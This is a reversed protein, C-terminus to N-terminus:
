RKRGSSSSKKKPPAKTSTKKKSTTQKYQNTKQTGTSRSQYTKNLNNYNKSRSSSTAKSGSTTKNPSSGSRNYNGTSSSRNGSNTKERTNRNSNSSNGRDKNPDSSRNTTSARGSSNTSARNTGEGTGTWRGNERKEWGNNTRRHVNGNRDTYVNNTRSVESGSRRVRNNNTITTTNTTTNRSSSTNTGTRTVGTERNRYVNTSRHTSRTSSSSSYSSSKTGYYYGASAGATYGRNYGYHYSRGYGYRYGAHYGAPGWYGRYYGPGVRYSVHFWGYSIGYSFGWGSYPSYHVGYGYTTHRPYYYTRYWPRYYYGTGYVVVGHYAYSGIYGPTYGMYVVTPTYHYVHVYKVNYVPYEAPIDQFEGPVDVCVSWPGDPGYAIFWVADDCCYYRNDIMLVSKDTNVAYSIETGKIAEFSADGDYEVEVKADQRNVEATQPITNELTADMAEETGSVSALVSGVDSNTPIQGFDEPLDRSDMYTWDNGTLSSSSYWRGSILIYYTQTNIDMIIDDETNSMYLLDTGEIPNYKPEGLSQLLEAPHTRLYIKASQSKGQVENKGSEKKKQKESEEMIQQLEEPARTTVKWDGSLDGSSYWIRDGYLFFEKENATAIFFPTNLIYKYKELGEIERYIPDGDISILMSAEESFIVEPPSNNLADGGTAVENPDISALLRDLSLTIEWKPVENELLDVLMDVEEQSAEPFKISKVVLDELLVERTEMDTSVWSNFWTAGFVPADGKKVTVAVASRAELLDGSFNEVQPQYLVITADKTKIERPWSPKEAQMNLASQFFMIAILLLMSGTRSSKLLKKM